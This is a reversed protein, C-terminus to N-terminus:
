DAIASALERSRIEVDHGVVQVVSREAEELVDVNVFRLTAVAQTRREDFLDNRGRLLRSAILQDGRASRRARLHVLEILAQAELFMAHLKSHVERARLAPVDLLSWSRCLWTKTEPSATRNPTPSARASAPSPPTRTTRPEPM